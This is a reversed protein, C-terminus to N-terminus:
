TKLEQFHSAMTKEINVNAQMCALGSMYKSTSNKCLAHTDHMHVHVDSPNTYSTLWMMMVDNDNMNWEHWTPILHCSMM